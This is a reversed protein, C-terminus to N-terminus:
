LVQVSLVVAPCLCEYTARTKTVQLSYKCRAQVSKGVHADVVLKPCPQLQPESKRHNISGTQLATRM